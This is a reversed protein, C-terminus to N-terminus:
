DQGKLKVWVALARAYCTGDPGFVATGCIHKRRERAIEWGIVVCHDGVRIGPTVEATIRGLPAQTGPSFRFAFYGACDLASWLFIPDVLGDEAALSQTPIWPSAVLKDDVPSPFIRLGDNESRAPGCVFCSSFDHEDAPPYHATAKLAQKFSPPPPVDLTLQTGHGSGLLLDGDRLEAEGDGNKGLSLTQELPPPALLTVEAPGEIQSAILGAM